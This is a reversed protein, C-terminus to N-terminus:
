AVEVTEILIRADACDIELHYTGPPVNSFVFTDFEDVVATQLVSGNKRLHVKVGEFTVENGDKSSLFGSLSFTAVSERELDLVILVDETEYVLGEPLLTAGRLAMPATSTNHSASPPRLRAVITRLTEGISVAPPLTLPLGMMEVLMEYESHCEVCTELHERIRTQEEESFQTPMHAFLALTDPSPCTVRYLYRAALATFSRLAEVEQRCTECQQIHHRVDDPIEGSTLRDFIVDSLTDLFSCTM